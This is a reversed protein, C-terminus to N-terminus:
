RSAHDYKRKWKILAALLIMNSFYVVAASLAVGKLQLLPVLLMMSLIKVGLAFAGGVLLVKYQQRSAMLSVLVITSAYAPIQALGYQFIDAVQATEKPTFAGREFLLQVIYPAAVWTIAAVILGIGFMWKAWQLALRNADSSGQTQTQSFVPLTARSIAMAGIGLILALIRNAYNLTSLAGAGLDAAFFQDIISIFSMLFQGAAMIGISGIFGRWAPSAFRFRPTQLEDTRHLPVALAIMHLAFGAVTGWLLPESIWEPPLMLAVLIVVAPVAEFLTNRHKGCALTWGSLLSIVLGIPALAALGRAMVVAEQLAKGSLGTWGAQLIAPLIMYVLGGLVIGALLTLGLLEARFRPIEDPNNHRISAVLPVLVVTLTSFWVSVPWNILNFTFVYADVTESVGYRWAITMEKAAAALKGLFVFLSVWFFGVAIHRHQSQPDTLHRRIRNVINLM